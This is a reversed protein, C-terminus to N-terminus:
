CFVSDLYSDGFGINGGFLIKQDVERLSISKDLCYSTSQFFDKRTSNHLFIAKVKPYLRIITLLTLVDM